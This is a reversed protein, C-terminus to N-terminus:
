NGRTLKQTLPMINAPDDQLDADLTVVYQGTSEKFGLTLAPSKGLNKQFSLVRVYKNDTAIRKLVDLSKDTSGDDVFIVEYTKKVGLFARKINQMLERLSDEENFVPVVISYDKQM